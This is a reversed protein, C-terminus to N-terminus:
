RTDLRRAQEIWDAVAEPRAGVATGVREPDAATLAAFTTIGNDNLRSSLVPGIGVIITLDDAAQHPTDVARQPAEAAAPKAPATTATAAREPSAPSGHIRAPAPELVPPPLLRNRLLYGTVAVVGLTGVTRLSLKM